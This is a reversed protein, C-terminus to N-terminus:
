LVNLLQEKIKELEDKMNVVIQQIKTHNAKSGLTNIERGIEQAIFGLKKGNAEDENMTNVFYDLHNKLRVKEETVDLKELYYIMEQEFRNKDFSPSDQIENLHETLRTKITDVREPDHKIVEELLTDINKIRKTLDLELAEGEQKRFKNIEELASNLATQIAQWEEEELQPRETKLTEPFRMISQFLSQDADLHIEDCIDKLQNYYGIVAQKNVVTTKDFNTVEYYVGCDIKGRQLNSSVTNRIIFEKERYLSPIKTNLDVQKSNLSKIEVTIKKNPIEVTSKGFGTMSTIM